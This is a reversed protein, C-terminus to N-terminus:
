YCQITNAYFCVRQDISDIQLGWCSDVRMTVGLKQYFCFLWLYTDVANEFNTNNLSVIHTSFLTFLNM